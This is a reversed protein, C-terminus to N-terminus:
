QAGGVGRLAFVPNNIGSFANTALVRAARQVRDTDPGPGAQPPLYADIESSWSKARGYAYNHYYEKTGDSAQLLKPADGEGYFDVPLFV